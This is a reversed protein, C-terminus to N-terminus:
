PQPKPGFIGWGFCQDLALLALAAVYVWVAVLVLKSILPHSDLFSPEAPAVAAGGPDAQPTTAVVPSAKAEAPKAPNRSSKGM